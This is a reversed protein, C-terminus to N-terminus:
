ILNGSDDHFKWWLAELDDLQDKRFGIELCYSLWKACKKIASVTRM